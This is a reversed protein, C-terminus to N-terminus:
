GQGLIHTEMMCAVGDEDNSPAIVDAVNKVVKQANKMAVGLGAFEIMSQDNFGDGFAAMQEKEIELFSLLRALSKAKDIGEPMIELFYPESRLISFGSGLTEKAKKEVKALYEGDKVLLCKTVPFDVYSVFDNVRCVPMKNIFAEKKVYENEPTETIIFDDQYTMIGVKNEAALRYIKAPAKKDFVKQYITKKTSCELIQGGNFSLIYGGYESLELEKALPMIGYTPRGSALAVIGGAEMFKKLTMRTRLTIEKRSNTLTGDLDLVVVKYKM